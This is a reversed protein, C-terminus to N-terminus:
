WDGRSPPANYGLAMAAKTQQNKEEINYMQSPSLRTNSGQMATFIDDTVPIYIMGTYVDDEFLGSGLWGDSINFNKYADGQRRMNEEYAKREASTADRYGLTPTKDVFADKTTTAAVMAFRHYAGTNLQGNSDYKVPLKADTFAKNIQEIQKPDPHEPDVTPNIGKKRLQNEVEQIQDLLKLNPKIYGKSAAEPDIPLETSHIRSGEIIVKSTAGVLIRADGMTAMDTRLVGGWAKSAQQLSGNQLIHGSGDTVNMTNADVEIGHMGKGQITTKTREGFGLFFRTVDDFKAKDESGESGSKASGDPNIDKQYDMKLETKEKSSASVIEKIVTKAGQETGGGRLKLWTKQAENLNRYIADVALIIQGQQSETNSTMKYVGDMPMGSINATAQEKLAQIGQAIQGDEKTVYGEMNTQVNGLKDAVAKIVENVQKFSTGNEVIGLVKNQFAMSSDTKRKQLLQSNTQVVYQSSNKFYEEPRITTLSNTKKNIVAMRGDSDIAVESLADNSKAQDYAKDFEEKSQVVKNILELNKYYQTIPNFSTTGFAAEMAPNPASAMLAQIAKHQDVDLGKMDKLLALTDKITPMGDSGSSSSSKSSSKSTTGTTEGSVLQALYNLMPDPVTENAVVPTYDAWIPPLAGGSQFKRFTVKM